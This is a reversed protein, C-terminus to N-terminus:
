PNVYGEFFKGWAQLPKESSVRLTAFSAKMFHDGVRVFSNNSLRRRKMYRADICNKLANQAFCCASAGQHAFQPLFENTLNHMLQAKGHRPQIAATYFAYV